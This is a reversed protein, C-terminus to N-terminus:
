RIILAAFHFSFLDHMESGSQTTDSCRVLRQVVVRNARSARQITSVVSSLTPRQM